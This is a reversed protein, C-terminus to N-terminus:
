YFSTAKRFGKVLVPVSMRKASNMIQTFCLSTAVTLQYFLQIQKETQCIFVAYIQLCSTNCVTHTKNNLIQVSNVSERLYIANNDGRFHNYRLWFCKWM